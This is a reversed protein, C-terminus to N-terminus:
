YVFKLSDEKTETKIKAIYTGRNYGLLSLQRTRADNLFDHKSALQGIHTYIAIGRIIENSSVTLVDQKVSVSTEQNTKKNDIGQSSDEVLRIAFGGGKAMNFTMKTQSNVSVTDAAYRTPYNSANQGDKLIYALYNIDPQLFDFSVEVDHATWSSMGGVYWDTGKQKAVTIYEGIQSNLPVTKDWTSPIKSLFDLIDPYKMYETPADCLFGLWHDFIVYMSLEHARSGQSSPIINPQDIPQFDTKSKNRMSGPTFDEPGALSRIFPFHVHYDPNSGSRWFNEENGLIAEFNLINPFTRNLGTPVPCGHFIGVMESEALEQAIRHGWTMAIQDNRQFFDIKLGAVGKAKQKAIWGPQDVVCSAWTWVIIKVGRGKAYTCLRSMEGGGWGADITLYELGNAAAFDVYYKYLDFGLHSNGNAPIKNEPDAKGDPTLMAKHWWEWTTKGPLIWDTNALRNPEALLYVLENNLLDKDDASVAFVRWPFARNGAVHAIYDYRSTPVHNSYIDNPKDVTKPYKAWMGKMSKNGTAQIYLGPYDYLDSELVAIKQPKDTWSFLIPTVAFRSASFSSAKNVTYRKEWHELNEAEPFYVTPDDAFNFVFDENDIIVSDAFATEWRYAIGENYARVILDYNENFHIALENYIEPISKNKGILVPLVNDVNRTETNKVTGNGVVTGSNLNLGIPSPAILQVDGYRIEYKTGNNVSVVIKIKEDPSKVEYNAASLNFICALLLLFCIRIRRFCNKNFIPYQM